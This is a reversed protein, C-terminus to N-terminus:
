TLIAVPVDRQPRRAEEAHTSISDFGIYAFFVVSAGLMMGSLGYPAFSSRVQDDLPLLWRNLGLLGLVGWKQAPDEPIERSAVPIDTWNAPNIYSWGAVIVFCVVALKTLVLA